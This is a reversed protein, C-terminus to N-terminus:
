RREIIKLEQAAVLLGRIVDALQVSLAACAAELEAAKADSNDTGVTSLVDEVIMQAEEIIALEDITRILRVALEGSM